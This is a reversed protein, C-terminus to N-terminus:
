NWRKDRWSYLASVMATSIIVAIPIAIEDFGLSQLIISFVIAAIGVIISKISEILIVIVYILMSSLAFSISSIDFQQIINGLFVGVCSGFVWSFHCLHNFIYLYTPNQKKIKSSHITYAFVEDTMGFAFLYRQYPKLYDLLNSLYIGMLIHRLNALFITIIIVAYEQQLVLLSLLIFQGAGTYVLLSALPAFWFALGADIASYGFVIAVVIYGIM